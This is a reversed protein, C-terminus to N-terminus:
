FFRAIGVGVLFAPEDLRAAFDVRFIDLIGNLSIGAELHAGDTTHPVYDIRNFLQQKRRDSVWTKAAGGFVIMGINQEVLFSLGLREFPITRFNHELNVAAYQEGEYPQYRATRLGEFLSLLSPAGDVIGFKQLPLDGSYTGADVSINLTNPFVRRQYFTDFSWDMHTSYRTFNFDSGLADDSYEVQLEIRERGTVGFSYGANLNYGVTLSVTNMLGTEVAPNIRPTNDSGFIDYATNVQLAKNDSSSFVAELSIDSRHDYIGAKIEYRERHYYDFYNKAGLLNSVSSLFPSMIQSQYRPATGYQYAVEFQPQFRGGTPRYKIGGGYGWKKYGTSYGGNVSLQVNNFSEVSYNLGAFLEDVRNYRIRPSFSGSIGGGSVETTGTTDTEGEEGVSVSLDVFRALFGTPQLMKELTNTSDLTQYAQQEEESLPVPEIATVRALSDQSTATTDVTFLDDEAYLSDPLPVNVQYNSVKALQRLQMRPFQLGIMGIKITGNIRADVPLWFDGGYNSFQQSYSLNFDQVPPPFRVVSNPQLQVQLLAYEEDLVYVEGKFLPQLNRKPIVQIRYVAQGDMQMQELLKFDYYSFADPHTVGVANFGAIEINDDYFNPLYSVGAFNQDANINATQRRWKLVERSGEEKDWFIQSASETIMVLSTDNLLNQRSYADATYTELNARWQQKREIVLRMIRIGPNEDTVVIEGLESVSPALEFNQEDESDADIRREISKFGLYRVQVTAPLLSDPITLSYTGDRNTITGRYENQIIINASPLTEGTQADRVTGTITKQAWGPSTIFLLGFILLRLKRPNLMIFNQNRLLPTISFKFTSTVPIFYGINFM